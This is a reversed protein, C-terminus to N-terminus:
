ILITLVNRFCNVTLGISLLSLILLTGTILQHVKASPDNRKRGSLPVLKTITKLSEPNKTPEHGIELNAEVCAQRYAVQSWRKFETDRDGLEDGLGIKTLRTGSLKGLASDLWKGFGCYNPYSTNGM